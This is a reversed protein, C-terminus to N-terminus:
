KDIVESRREEYTNLRDALKKANMNFIDILANMRQDEGQLYFKSIKAMISTQRIIYDQMMNLVIKHMEERVNNRDM